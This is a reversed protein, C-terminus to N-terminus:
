SARPEPLKLETLLLGITSVISFSFVQWVLGSAIEGVAVPSSFGLIFSAASHLIGVLGGCASAGVIRRSLRAGGAGLTVAMGCLAPVLVLLWWIDVLDPMTGLNRSYALDALGFIGAGAIACPFIHWYRPRLAARMQARKGMRRRLTLPWNYFLCFMGHELLAGNEGFVPVIHVASTAWHRAMFRALAPYRYAMQIPFALYGIYKFFGLVLAINYDKINRERIVLYAVYLGRTLSGPSIPTVQFLAIIGLGVAWAQARPMEPNVAVYILAVLM